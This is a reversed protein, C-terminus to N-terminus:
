LFIQYMWKLINGLIPLIAFNQSPSIYTMSVVWYYFLMLFSAEAISLSIFFMTLKKTIVFFRENKILINLSVVILLFVATLQSVYYYLYMFRVPFQEIFYISGLLILVGYVIAITKFEVEILEKIRDIRLIFYLLIIYIMLLYRYELVAPTDTIISGFLNINLLIYLLSYAGLLIAIYVFFFKDLINLKIRSKGMYVIFALAIILFPSVLFVGFTNNLKIFLVSFIIGIFSENISNWKYGLKDLLESQKNNGNNDLLIFDKSTELTIGEDTLPTNELISFPTGLILYNFILYPILSILIISLVSLVYKINIKKVTIFHMVILSILLVTGDLIRTWICLGALVYSIFIYKNQKTEYHQYFYYISLLTFFLTLSHHKLTIAYFSIPTALIVFFSAFLAIKNGFFINFLKYIILAILSTIIINTFEISILEGWKPFYIPEFFFWNSLFLIGSSLVGIKLANGSKKYKMIFYAIMGGSLAWLQLILLHAGYYNDIIKLIYYVPLSLILLSYSFLGYLNNGVVIFIGKETNIKAIKIALSGNILNYFQDLIVGEDSLFLRTGAFTLLIFFSSTFVFLPIPNSDFYNLIKKIINM